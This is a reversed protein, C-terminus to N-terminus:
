DRGAQLDNWGGWGRTWGKTKMRYIFHIMTGVLALGALTWWFWTQDHFLVGGTLLCSWKIVRFWIPQAHRSIAIRFERRIVTTFRKM